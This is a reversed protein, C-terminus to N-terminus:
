GFIDDEEENDEDILRCIKNCSFMSVQNRKKRKINSMSLVDNFTDDLTNNHGDFIGEDDSSEIEIVNNWKWTYLNAERKMKKSERIM